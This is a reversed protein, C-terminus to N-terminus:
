GNPHDQDRAPSTWRQTEVHESLEKPDKENAERADVGEARVLHRIKAMGRLGCRPKPLAPGPCPNATAPPGSM